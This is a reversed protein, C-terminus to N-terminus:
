CFYNKHGAHCGIVLFHRSHTLPNLHLPGKARKEILIASFQDIEASFALLMESEASPVGKEIEERWGDRGKGGGQIDKFSWCQRNLFDNVLQV